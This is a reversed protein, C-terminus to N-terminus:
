IFLHILDQGVVELRAPWREESDVAEVPEDVPLPSSEMCSIASIASVNHVIFM